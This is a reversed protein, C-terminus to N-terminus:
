DAWKEIIEVIADAALQSANGDTTAFVDSVIEKRREDFDNPRNLAEIISDNLEKKKNCNIGMDAHEWFRMGHEVDRRYFPANLLVVNRELSIWEYITSSSDCVYLSAEDIVDFFNDIFPIGISQYFKEFRSKQNPHGHGVLNYEKDMKALQALASKYYIFASRTEPLLQCDWHFSVCVTNENKPKKKAAHYKDLKPVGIPYVPITPYYYEQQAAQKEGPVFIAVVRAREGGIYSKHKIGSYSQGVGHETYIVKRGYRERANQLNIHSACYMLREANNESNLNIIPNQNEIEIDKKELYKHLKYSVYFNGKNREPLKEWVPLIHDLYQIHTAYFDIRQSDNM